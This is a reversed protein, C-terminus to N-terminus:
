YDIDCVEEMISRDAGIGVFCLEDENWGLTGSVDNNCCARIEAEGDSEIRLVESWSGEETADDIRPECFGTDCGFRVETAGAEIYFSSDGDGIYSDGEEFPITAGTRVGGGTAESLVQGAQDEFGLPPSIMGLIQLLIGLIAVAVVAAILLKFTSFAQGKM